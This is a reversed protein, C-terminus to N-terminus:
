AARHAVRTSSLFLFFFFFLPFFSKPNITETESQIIEDGNEKESPRGAPTQYGRSDISDRLGGRGDARFHSLEFSSEPLRAEPFHFSDTPFLFRPL